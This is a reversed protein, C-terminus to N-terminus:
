CSESRVSLAAGAAAYMGYETKTPSIGNDGFFARIFRDITQVATPKNEGRVFVDGLHFVDSVRQGFEDNVENYDIEILDIAQSEADSDAVIGTTFNKIKDIMLERREDKDLYVSVQVFKRGYVQRLLSIEEERKFQRIVYARGLIPTNRAELDSLGDNGDHVQRLRRVESIALCALAAKNDVLRRVEDANRILSKYKESYTTDAVAMHPLVDRM